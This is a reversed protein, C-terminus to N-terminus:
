QYVPIWVLWLTFCHCQEYYMYLMCQILTRDLIWFKAPPPPFGNNIVCGYLTPVPPLHAWEWMFRLFQPMKLSLQASFPLFKLEQQYISANQSKFQCLNWSKNIICIVPLVKRQPPPPAPSNPPFSGGGKGGGASLVKYMHLIYVHIISPKCVPGCFLLM